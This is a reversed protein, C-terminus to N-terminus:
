IAQESAVSDVSIVTFLKFNCFYISREQYKTCENSTFELIDGCNLQIVVYLASLHSKLLTYPLLISVCIVVGSAASAVSTVTSNM